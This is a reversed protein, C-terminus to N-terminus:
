GFFTQCTHDRLSLGQQPGHYPDVDALADVEENEMPKHLWVAINHLVACAGVIMCVKEPAM